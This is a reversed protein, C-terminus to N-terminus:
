PQREKAEAEKEELEKPDFKSLYMKNRKEIAARAKPDSAVHAAHAGHLAKFTGPKVEALAPPPNDLVKISTVPHIEWCTARWNHKGGPNTNEAGDVHMVDFLLWGTVEVWKKKFKTRLEQTSWNVEKEKMLKRLRPTVEVIVRQGPETDESLGLEIHTDMDIVATAGCNCTEAKGGPKVDVVFATIRAGKEQDFRTVDNGPALMATLSVEPDIDAEGPATTRNKHRNLEKGAASTATGEPRCKTGDQLTYVDQDGPQAIVLSVTAAFCLVALSAIRIM